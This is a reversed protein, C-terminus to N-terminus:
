MQDERYVYSSQGWGQWLVMWGVWGAGVWWEADREPRKDRPTVNPALSADMRM